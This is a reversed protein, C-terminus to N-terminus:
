CFFTPISEPPSRFLHPFSVSQRGNNSMHHCTTGAAAAASAAAVAGVTALLIATPVSVTSTNYNSIAVEVIAVQQQHHQQQHRHQPGWAAGRGHGSALPCGAAAPRAWLRNPHQCESPEPLPWGATQRYAMPRSISHEPTVREDICTTNTKSGRAHRSSQPVTPPHLYLHRKKETEHM